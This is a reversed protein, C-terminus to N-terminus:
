FTSTISISLGNSPPVVRCVGGVCFIGRQQRGYSVQFRTTGAVYVVSGLPYHLKADEEPNGYNYIDQVSFFWHPSISYELLIMAMDGRDQKTLLLQTETRLYHKPKIKFLFEAVAANIYVMKTQSPNAILVEDKVGDLVVSQNYQMNFYTLTMKVAKSLKQDWKINLDQFYKVQGLKFWDTTYGNQVYNLTDTKPIPDKWISYADSFNINLDAGYKGGFLSNRPLKFNAEVQLGMEGNIQTAYQYLSPLAYTHVKSIAPLYNILGEILTGDRESRFSMNDVRKLGLTFGYGPASYSFNALLAQGPRFIYGNDASPDNVKYVYELIASFGGNLIQTRAGGLGVNEPLNYIPNNASQFKSVFSGGFSIRTKKESWGAIMDNLTIEADLARVIGDSKEFYIRQRGIIAKLRLGKVPTYLLRVGDFMNDYGLGREEYARLAMGSGFQEYFNGATIDLGDKVFQIFRYTIGEGRYGTPFGLMVNQYNEYRIGARFPGNSYILNAYGQGLFREDPYFEGSPDIATDRLYLQGDFQFNGHLEGWNKPNTEQGFAFLSTLSAFSALLIRKV